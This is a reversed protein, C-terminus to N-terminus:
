FQYVLARLNFRRLLSADKQSRSHLSRTTGLDLGAWGQVTKSLRTVGAGGDTGVCFRAHKKLVKQNTAGKPM